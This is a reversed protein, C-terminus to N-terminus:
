QAPFRLQASLGGEPRNGLTLDGGHQQAVARAFTLGLGAGGTARNRSAEGRTFPEMMEAIRDEPIGPGTDDVCFVVDAGERRLTLTADGGYRIANSVLNRLGRKLWTVHIPASINEAEFGVAHGMDEFEEVVFAALASLDTVEPPQTSKGIRALSLIDDLTHTIDDIGQAMKARATDDEVGEIRVRLAALPTKLDHGIAGLMVDKEHLMAGIRAEMANHATILRQVDAPGSADMPEAPVPKTSFSETRRTLQALPGTIRRLILWLVLSLLATLLAAAALAFGPRATRAHPRIPARAIQWSDGIRLGAVAVDEPTRGDQLGRRLAQRQLFRRSVPDAEVPRAVVRLEDFDRGNGRLSEGLREALDPLPRDVELTEFTDASALGAGAFRGGRRALRRARAPLDFRQAAVLRLGLTNALETEARQAERNSVAISTVGLVIFLTLAVALMVQGLLSSPWFRKM